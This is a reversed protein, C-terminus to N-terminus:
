NAARRLALAGVAFAVMGTVLHTGLADKGMLAVVIGVLAMGGAFILITRLRSAEYDMVMKARQSHQEQQRTAETSRIRECEVMAQARTQDAQLFATAVNEISKAIVQVEPRQLVEVAMAKFQEAPSLPPAVLPQQEPLSDSM